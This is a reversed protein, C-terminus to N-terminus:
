KDERVLLSQYTPVTPISGVFAQPVPPGGAAKRLPPTITVREVM